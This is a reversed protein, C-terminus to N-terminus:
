RFIGLPYTYLAVIPAAVDLAHRVFVVFRRFTSLCNSSFARKLCSRKADVVCLENSPEERFAM